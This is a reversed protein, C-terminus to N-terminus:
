TKNNATAPKDVTPTTQSKLYSTKDTFFNNKTRELLCHNIWTDSVNNSLIIHENLKITDWSNIIIHHNRFVTNYDVYSTILAIRVLEM